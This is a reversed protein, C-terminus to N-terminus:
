EESTEEESYTSHTQPSYGPEGPIVVQDTIKKRMHYPAFVVKFMEIATRSEAKAIDRDRMM